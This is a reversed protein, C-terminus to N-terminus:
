HKGTRANIISRTNRLLRFLERASKVRVRARSRTPGTVAHTCTFTAQFANRVHLLRTGDDGDRASTHSAHPPTTSHFLFSPARALLPPLSLTKRLTLNTKSNSPAFDIYHLPFFSVGSRWRVCRFNNARTFHQQGRWSKCIYIYIYM